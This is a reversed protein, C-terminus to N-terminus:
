APPTGVDEEELLAALEVLDRQVAAPLRQAAAGLVIAPTAAGAVPTSMAVRATAAMRWPWRVLRVFAVLLLALAGAVAPLVVWRVVLPGERAIAVTRHRGPPPARGPGTAPPVPAAAQASPAPAPAPQSEPAATGDVPPAPAAAGQPAPAPQAAAAPAPAPRPAPAAVPPAPTAAPTATPTPPEDPPVVLAPAAAVAGSSVPSGLAILAAVSAAAAGAWARRRGTVM